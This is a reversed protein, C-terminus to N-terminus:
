AATKTQWILAIAVSFIDGASSDPIMCPPLTRHTSHRRTM